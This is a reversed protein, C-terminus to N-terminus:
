IRKKTNSGLKTYGLRDYLKDTKDTRVGTSQSLYIESVGKLKAWEEYAHVLRVVTFGGRYRPTIFLALDQSQLEDSFFYNCIGALIFGLYEDEKKYLALFIDPNQLLEKVKADSFSIDKFSSEAHMQHSLEMFADWQSGDYLEIM